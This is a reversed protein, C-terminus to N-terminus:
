AAAEYPKGPVFSVTGKADVKVTMSVGGPVNTREGGIMNSKWFRINTGDVAHIAFCNVKERRNGNYYYMERDEIPDQLILPSNLHCNKTLFVGNVSCNYYTTEEEDVTMYTTLIVVSHRGVVNHVYPDIIPSDPNKKAEVIADCQGVSQCVIKVTRLQAASLDPVSVGASIKAAPRAAPARDELPEWNKVASSAPEAVPAAKAKAEAKAALKMQDILNGLIDVFWWFEARKGPDTEGEARKKARPYLSETEPLTFLGGM